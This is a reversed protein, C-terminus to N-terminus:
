PTQPVPSPTDPDGESVQARMREAPSLVVCSPNADLLKQAQSPTELPIMGLDEVLSPDLRSLLYVEAHSIALAISRAELSTPTM